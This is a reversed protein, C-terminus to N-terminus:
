GNYSEKLALTMYHFKADIVKDGDLKGQVVPILEFSDSPLEQESLLEGDITIMDEELNAENMTGIADMLNPTFQVNSNHKYIIAKDEKIDKRIDEVISEMCEKSYVRNNM